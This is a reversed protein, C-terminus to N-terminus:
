CRYWEEAWEDIADVVDPDIPYEARDTWWFLQVAKAATDIYINPGGWAVMIKVSRYKRDSGIRFEVDLVGDEFYDYFSIQEWPEADEGVLDVQYGCGCFLNNDEVMEGCEPCRYMRGGAVAELLEAITKCHERNENKMQKEEM